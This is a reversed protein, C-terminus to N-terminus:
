KSNCFASSESDPLSEPESESFSLLLSLLEDPLLELESPEPLSLDTNLNYFFIFLENM